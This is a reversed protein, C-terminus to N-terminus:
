EKKNKNGRDATVKLSPSNEEQSTIDKMAKTARKVIGVNTVVFAIAVSTVFLWPSTGYREDLWSGLFVGLLIPIVVWGSLEAFLM